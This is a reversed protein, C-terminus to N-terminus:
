KRKRGKKRVVIDSIECNFIDCMKELTEFKISSTENNMLRTLSQYGGEMNKVFWYKTKKQKKLLEKIQLQIM